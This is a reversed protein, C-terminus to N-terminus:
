AISFYPPSGIASQLSNFLHHASYSEFGCLLTYEVVYFAVSPVKLLPLVHLATRVAPSRCTTHPSQLCGVLDAGASTRRRLMVHASGFTLSSSPRACMALSRRSWVAKTGDM